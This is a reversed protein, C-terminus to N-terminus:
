LVLWSLLSIARFDPLLVSNESCVRCEIYPMWCQRVGTCDFPWCPTFMNKFLVVLWLLHLPFLFQIFKFSNRRAVWALFILVPHPCLAANMTGEERSETFHYTHSDWNKRKGKRNKWKNGSVVCPILLCDELVIVRFWSSNFSFTPLSMWIYNNMITAVM